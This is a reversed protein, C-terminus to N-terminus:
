EGAPMPALCTDPIDRYVLPHYRLRAVLDILKYRWEYRNRWQESRQPYPTDPVAALAFECDPCLTKKAREFSDQTRWLQMDHAILLARNLGFSQLREISCVAIDMTRLDLKDDHKDIRRLRVDGLWCVKAATECYVRWVGEQVFILKIDSHHKLAWDLLFQNAPGAIMDGAVDREFGFGMIIIAQVSSANGRPNARFVEAPLFILSILAALCLGLLILVRRLLTM